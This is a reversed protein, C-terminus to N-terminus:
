TGPGLLADYMAALAPSTGARAFPPGEPCNIRVVPKSWTERRDPDVGHQRLKEEIVDVCERVVDSAVAGRVVVFGSELFGEPAPKTM